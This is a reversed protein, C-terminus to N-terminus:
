RGWPPSAPSASAPAGGGWAPTAPNAAPAPTPNAPPAGWGGANPQPQAQPQATPQKGPEIGNADLVKKIEMYGNPKGEKDTQPGVDIMCRAGRLAAGDNQFDLQFIGVAYCLASLEHQAIEVAKPSSNWLNYRNSITGAPTSFEVVFMGGTKDKTEQIGTNSINAQFKGPPHADGAQRPTFQQANFTGQLPM